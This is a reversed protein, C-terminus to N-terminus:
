ISCRCAPRAPACLSLILGQQWPHMCEAHCGNAALLSSLICRSGGRLARRCAPRGRQMNYNCLSVQQALLRSGLVCVEVAGVQLRAERTRARKAFIEIILRRRDMVPLGLDAELNRQHIGNLNANMVLRCCLWHCEAQLLSLSM